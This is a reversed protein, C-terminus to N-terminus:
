DDKKLKIPIERNLKKRIFYSRLFFAELFHIESIVKLRKFSKEIKEASESANYLAKTYDIDNKEFYNRNFVYLESNSPEWYPVQVFTRLDKVLRAFQNLEETILSEIPGDMRIELSSSELFYGVDHMSNLLDCQIARAQYIAFELEVIRREELKNTLKLLLECDRKHKTESVPRIFAFLGALSGVLFFTDKIVSFATVKDTMKEIGKKCIILYNQANSTRIQPKYVFDLKNDTDLQALV